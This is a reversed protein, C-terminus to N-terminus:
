HCLSYHDVQVVVLMCQLSGSTCCNVSSTVVISIWKSTLLAMFQLSGSSFHLVPMFQLSVSTCCNVSSTLLSM